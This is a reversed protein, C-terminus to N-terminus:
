KTDGNSLKGIKIDMGIGWFRGPMARWLIAQYDQNWLNQIELYGEVRGKGGSFARSIRLNQLSFHPLVSGETLSFSTNRSGTYQIQHMVRWDKWRLTHHFSGQLLPVYLMQKGCFEQGQQDCARQTTRHLALMARAHYVGWSEERTYQLAFELGRTWVSQLNTATWFGFDGPRWLIWNEMYSTFLEVGGVLLGKNLPLIKRGSLEWLHGQEPELDPNGGPVWYLDNLTPLHFNRSFRLRWFNNKEEGKASALTLSYVLPVKRDSVMERRLLFGYEVSSGLLRNAETQAGLTNRHARYNGLANLNRLEVKDSQADIKGKWQFGGWNLGSFDYRGFFSNVRNGSDYNVLKGLPTAHSLHYNLYMHNWGLRLRQLGETGLRKQNMALARFSDDNQFETRGAGAFSMLAPLARESKQWWLHTSWIGSSKGNYYYDTMLGSQKVQANKQREERRDFRATNTFVFDNDATLRMARISMSHRGKSFNMRGLMRLNGFSGRELVWNGGLGGNSEAQSGLSLVGGLAGIGEEMGAGGPLVRMEDIFFLPLLSLDLQGVMPSHIPMGQWFVKTHAALTGRFSATALGGLGYSRIFLPSSQSLVDALHATKRDELLSKDLTYPRGFSVEGKKLGGVKIEPLPFTDRDMYTQAGLGLSCFIGILIGLGNFSWNRM